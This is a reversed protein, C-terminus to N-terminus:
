VGARLGMASGYVKRSYAMYPLWQEPLSFLNFASQLDESDLVLTEDEEVLLGTLQGIYPLTQQAGAVVETVANIPCMVSIFRQCQTLQGNVQKEKAVAAAGNTILHGGRDRPVDDDSVPRMMGLKWTHNVLKFWEDDTARVRSYLSNVPMKEKPLM